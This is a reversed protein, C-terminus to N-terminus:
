MRVNVRTCMRVDPPNSLKKVRLSELKSIKLLFHLFTLFNYSKKNKM